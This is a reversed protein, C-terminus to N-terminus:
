PNMHDAADYGQKTIAFVEGQTDRQVFLGAKILEQLASEWLAVARADGKDTLLSIGNTHLDAGSGYHEYLVLGSGDQAAQKLLQKAEKSLVETVNAASKSSFSKEGSVWFMAGGFGIVGLFLLIFIGVRAKESAKNFFFYALISLAISLLALMGLYSQAASNIIEPLREFLKDM